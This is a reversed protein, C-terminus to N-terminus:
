GSRAPTGGRRPLPDDEPGEQRCEQLLAQLWEREALTGGHVFSRELADLAAEAKRGAEHRRGRALLVAAEARLYTSREAQRPKAHRLWAGAAEVNRRYVADFYAAELAVAAFAHNQTAALDLLKAAETIRGADLAHYYGFLNILTDGATGSRLALLQAVLDPNLDRPRTGSVVVGSLTFLIAKQESSRGGILLALLYAGDSDYGGFQCPILNAVFFGFNMCLGSVLLASFFDNVRLVRAFYTLFAEGAPRTLDSAQCTVALITLSLLGLVLNALLGGAAFLGVRRRLTHSDAPYAAVFGSLGGPSTGVLRLRLRGAERVFRLSGVQVCYVRLGAAWAALLHGCEHGAITILFMVFLTALSFLLSLFPERGREARMLGDTTLITAAILAGFVVIYSFIRGFRKV